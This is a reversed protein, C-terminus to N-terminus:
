APVQLLFGFLIGRSTGEFNWYVSLIFFLSVNMLSHEGEKTLSRRFSALLTLYRM